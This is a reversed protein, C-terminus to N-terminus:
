AVESESEYPEGYGARRLLVAMDDLRMVALWEGARSEGLGPRKWVLFGVDAGANSTQEALQELWESWLPTRANKVQCIAAPGPVLHLDGMDRAYGARTKECWPFGLVRLASQVVREAWDGKVKNSNPM